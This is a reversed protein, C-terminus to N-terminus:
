IIINVHTHSHTSYFRVCVQDSHFSHPIHNEQELNDFGHMAQGRVTSIPSHILDKLTINVGLDQVTHGLILDKLTINM